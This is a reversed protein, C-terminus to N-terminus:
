ALKAMSIGQLTVVTVSEWPTDRVVLVATEVAVSLLPEFCLDLVLSDAEEFDLLKCGAGLNSVASAATSTPAITPPTTPPTPPRMM